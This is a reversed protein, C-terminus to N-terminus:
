DSDSDHEEGESLSEVDSFELRVERRVPRPIPPRRPPKVPKPLGPERGQCKARSNKAKWQALEHNYRQRDANNQDKREQEEKKWRALAEKQEALAEKRAEKLQVETDRLQDRHAVQALFEDSTLVAPLGNAMLRRSDKEKSQESSFLQSKLRACYLGQLVAVTSASQAAKSHQSDREAFERLARVLRSEQETQPTYTLLARTDASLPKIHPYTMRPIDEHEIPVPASDLLFGFSTSALAERVKEIADEDTSMRDGRDSSIQQQLASNVFTQIPSPQRIPLSGQTSTEVAVSLLTASIASPDFPVVGTKRFALQINHPTFARIYADSMVRMFNTKQVVLGTEREYEDRRASWYQKFPSFCVVDLGQYIHTSHSPYCLITISAVRAYELFARSLHSVHGDVLLLRTRGAAKDLTQRDFEQLWCLAIEGTIWGKQSHGIRFDLNTLMAFYHVFDACIICKTPQGPEM